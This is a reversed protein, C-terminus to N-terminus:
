PLLEKVPIRGLEKGGIVVPVADDPGYNTQKKYTPNKGIRPETYVEVRCEILNVIWYEPIRGSAYLARKIGRDRDLTVDAVEMVLLTESPHPHRKSYARDPGHFVSCSPEPESDRFTITSSAGIVWETEDLIKFVRHQLRSCASARPPGSKPKPVIWGRLLEYPDGSLLIGVALLRHYEAVTFKRVPFPPIDTERIPDIIRRQRATLKM